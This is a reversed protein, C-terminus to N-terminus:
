LATNKLSEINKYNVLVRSYSNIPIFEESTIQITYQLIQTKLVECKKAGTSNPFKKIVADCIELADKIKWRVDTNTTANYCQGQQYYINAIEFDYLAAVDTNAANWKKSASKLSEIELFQDAFICDKENGLM